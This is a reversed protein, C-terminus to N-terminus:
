FAWRYILSLQGNDRFNTEPFDNIGWNNYEISLSNADYRTYGFGYSWNVGGTGIPKILTSRIFWHSYPNWSWGWSVSPNDSLPKSLAITSALNNKALWRGKLKYSVEAVANEIDLGDGPSLPGWHNLQIGWTGPHWDDYGIGWSYTFPQSEQSINLASRIFWYSDSIPKYGLNFKLSTDALRFSRNELSVSGSLGKSSIANVSVIANGNSPATIVVASPQPHTNTEQEITEFPVPVGDPTVTTNIDTDPPEPPIEVLVSDQAASDPNYDPKSPAQPNAAALAPVNQIEPATPQLEAQQNENTKEAPQPKEQEVPKNAQEETQTKIALKPVPANCTLNWSVPKFQKASFVTAQVRSIFNRKGARYLHKDDPHPLCHAIYRQQLKRDALSRITTNIYPTTFNFSDSNNKGPILGFALFGQWKHRASDPSPTRVSKRNVWQHDYFKGNDIVSCFNWQIVTEEVLSKVEPFKTTSQHLVQLVQDLTTAQLLPQTNGPTEAPLGPARLGSQGISRIHHAAEHQDAACHLKETASQLTDDAAPGTDSNVITVSLCCWLTTGLLVKRVGHNEEMTLGRGSSLGRSNM